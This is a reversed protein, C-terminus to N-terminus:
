EWLRQPPVPKHTRNLYLSKGNVPIRNYFVTRPEKSSQSADLVPTSTRSAKKLAYPFQAIHLSHGKTRLTCYVGECDLFDEHADEYPFLRTERPALTSEWVKRTFRNHRFASVFLIRDPTMVGILRGDPSIVVDPREPDMWFLGFGLALVPLAGYRWRAKWLCLWLASLVVLGLVWSDPKAMPIRAGPWSTVKYATETVAQIGWGMAQLPYTELGFPMTMLSLFGLPMIWFGMLPIAVLNSLLGQATFQGFHYITFPTTALTALTTTLLVGGVYSALKGMLTPTGRDRLRHAHIQALSEYFAILVVVAAFSLQFSPTLLVEPFILLIGLAALCVSRMSLAKRDSLVAVMVIFTMIFARQAPVAMGSILLYGLTIFIAGLAGLKKTNLRLSIAPILSLVLRVVVFVFGAVLSLHLGSIALIHAIGANAYADRDKQSLAAKEGTLLAVAITGQSKGLAARIRGTIHSRLTQLRETWGPKLSHELIQPPAATPFAYASLGEFFAKRRFNFGRDVLPPSVPALNATVRIRTGPALAPLPNKKTNKAYYRVLALPIPPDSQSVDLLVRAKRSAWEVSVVTGTLTVNAIEQTVMPTHLRHAKTQILTFGLAVLFFALAALRGLPRKFFLGVLILASLTAVPGVWVPPEQPLSVFAIIGFGLLVPAWLFVRERDEFFSQSIQFPPAM